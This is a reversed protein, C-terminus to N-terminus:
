KGQEASSLGSPRSVFLPLMSGKGRSPTQGYELVRQEGDRTEVVLQRFPQDRFSAEGMTASFAASKDLLFLVKKPTRTNAYIFAGVLETAGGSAELVTNDGETKLGLIWLKAGRNVIMTHYSSEPNLQRAWVNQGEVFHWPDGAVDEIFLDGAGKVAEYAGARSMRMSALVLTRDASHRIRATPNRIPLIELREMRVVPAEGDAIHIVSDGTLRAECGIIRRVNGRVYLDGSLNWIGNPLYVTGAGSDIAQQIAQTDDQGDGPIGGFQLPSVWQELPDWPVDPTSQIPLNLASLKQDKDFLTLPEHSVFEDIRADKTSRQTDEENAIATAYRTTRVNRAYLAGRNEIAAGPHGNGVAELDAGLLTVVGWHNQLAPVRGRTVLDEISLVQQVNLIGAVHQGHLEVDVMTISNVSGWSHVGIDFGKVHLGRVLLPGMEGTYGLDLGIRGAGDGSRIAVDFVGGQNNTMFRAGIAGPNGKGTDLTLNRIANRFRQAPARGTWLMAKGDPRKYRDDVQGGQGFGESNDKLKIVTGDRSQGQLITRKMFGGEGRGEPWRLTDSILYTGNPLYIIKNSSPADDLARQIAATSDSVGSPDADYPARTVDVVGADDPFVINEGHAEVSVASLTLMM